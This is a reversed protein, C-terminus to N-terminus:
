EYVRHCYCRCEGKCAHIQWCKDCGKTLESNNTTRGNTTRGCKQCVGCLCIIRAGICDCRGERTPECM